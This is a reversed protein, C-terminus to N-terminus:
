ASLLIHVLIATVWFRLTTKLEEHIAPNLFNLDPQKAAFQHLYWQGRIENYTWASGGFVSLQKKESGDM